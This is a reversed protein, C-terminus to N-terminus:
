YTITLLHYQTLKSQYIKHLAIIASLCARVAILIILQILGAITRILKM